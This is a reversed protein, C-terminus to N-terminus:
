KTIFQRLETYAQSLKNIIDYAHDAEEKTLGTIQLYLDILQKEEETYKKDSLIMVALEIVIMKLESRSSIESLDTIIDKPSRDVSYHPAVNMESSYQNIIEKEEDALEKDINAAIILLDLVLDKQANSLRNLFM